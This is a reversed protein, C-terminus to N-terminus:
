PTGIFLYANVQGSSARGLGIYAPGIPTETRLYIVASDLVGTRLPESLPRGIRGAELAVGARLDGRLGIPMQGLIREARVHGYSVQDGSLQNPAFGSLNLFGGLKAVQQGPLEGYTSGAYSGRMGLVWDNFLM